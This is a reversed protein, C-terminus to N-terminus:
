ADPPGIERLAYKMGLEFRSQVGAAAMMEAIRRSVTRPSVDMAAAIRADTWGQALRALIGDGGSVFTQWPVAAHWHTEFLHVLPQIVSARTTLRHRELDGTLDDDRLLAAREDYISFEVTAPFVRVQVGLDIAMEILSQAPSGHAAPPVIVRAALWGQSFVHDVIGPDLERAWHRSVFSGDEPLMMDMRLPHRVRDTGDNLVNWWHQWYGLEGYLIEDADPDAAHQWRSWLAHLRDFMERTEDDLELATDRVPRLVVAGDEHAALGVAILRELADQQRRGLAARGGDATIRKLGSLVLTEYDRRLRVEDPATVDTTSSM